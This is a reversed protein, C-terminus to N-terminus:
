RNQRKGKNQKDRKQREQEKNIYARQQAKNRKTDINDKECIDCQEKGKKCRVQPGQKNYRLRLEQRNIKVDL